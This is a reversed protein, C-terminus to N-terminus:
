SQRRRQQSWGVARRGSGIVSSSENKAAELNNSGRVQSEDLKASKNALSNLLLSVIARKNKTQTKALQVVFFCGCRCSITSQGPTTRSNNLREQHQSEFLPRHTFVGQASAISILHHGPIIYCRLPTRYRVTQEIALKRNLHHNDIM